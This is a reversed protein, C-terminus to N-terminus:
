DGSTFYDKVKEFMSKETPKNDAPSIVALEQLLRKQEKTLRNPTQVRVHVYLDGRGRGDLRAVGKGKLSFVTETQTGAPVHLPVQGDLTAIAVEAGLAAQWFSIPITCILNEDRREFFPHERVALVVYLDGPPGGHPGAEGEGPVRLRTGNDVGAPIKVKLTKEVRQRGEGRCKSCPNAIIQGAGGCHGCPKSISFFGQSFRVQGRGGCATCTVPGTGKRAGSGECEPCRELRPVRIHTDLGFAADEFSIELDYRLHAGHSRGGRRRGRNGLGAGFLDGLGFAEFIDEFETFMGPDFGVGGSASSGVGAHGHRDYAARRQADGLVGYAEALEKFKEEAQHHDPNRDPHYELAKKRYASKIQQETANREVGLVEYYDRKQSV